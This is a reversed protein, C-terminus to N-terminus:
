GTYTRDNGLKRGIIESIGSGFYELANRRIRNLAEENKQLRIQLLNFIHKIEELARDYTSRELHMRFIMEHVSLKMNGEMELTSLILNYGQDTLKYSTRKTQDELYVVRNEIYSIHTDIYEKKEFDFCPFYMARGEDSLVVNVIFIRWHMAKNLLIGSKQFFSQM